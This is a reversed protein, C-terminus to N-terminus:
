AKLSRSLGFDCIKVNCEEDVLVNAPKLDRHLINASHLFQVACLLKYILVLIHEQDLMIKNAKCLVKKFDSHMHEMVLFISTM